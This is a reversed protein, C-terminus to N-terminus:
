WVPKLNKTPKYKKGFIYDTMPRNLVGSSISCFGTAAHVNTNYKEGYVSTSFIEKDASHRVKKAYKELQGNMLKDWYEIEQEKPNDFVIRKLFFTYIMIKWCSDKWFKSGKFIFLSPSDTTLIETRMVKALDEFDHLLKINKELNELYNKNKNFSCINYIVYTPKNSITSYNNVSKYYPTYNFNAKNKNKEYFIFDSMYARCTSSVFGINFKNNGLYNALGLGTNAYRGKFDETDILNVKRYSM